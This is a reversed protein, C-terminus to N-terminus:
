FKEVREKERIDLHKQKKKKPHKMKKKKDVAKYEHVKGLLKEYSFKIMGEDNSEDGGYKSMDLIKEGDKKEKMETLLAAKKTADNKIPEFEHVAITKIVKIPEEKV